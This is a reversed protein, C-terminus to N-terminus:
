PGTYYAICEFKFWLDSTPLRCRPLTCRNSPEAFSRNANRSTVSLGTWATAKVGLPAPACSRFTAIHVALAALQVSARATQPIQKPLFSPIAGILHTPDFHCGTAIAKRTIVLCRGRALKQNGIASRSGEAMHPTFYAYSPLSFRPLM